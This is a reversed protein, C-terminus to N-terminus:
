NCSMELFRSYVRGGDWGGGKGRFDVTSRNITNVTDVGRILEAPHPTGERAFFPGLSNGARTERIFLYIRRPDKEHSM